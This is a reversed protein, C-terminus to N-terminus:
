KGGGLLNNGKNLTGGQSPANGGLGGHLGVSKGAARGAEFAAKSSARAGPTPAAKGVSLGAVFKTVAQEAKDFRVLAHNGGRQETERRMQRLRERIAHVYGLLFNRKANHEPPLGMAKTRARSAFYYRHGLDDGTKALVSFLYSVIARDSKRGIIKISKSGSYILMQCFHARCLAAALIELWGTRKRGAERLETVKTIDFYEADILDENEMQLVELDSMELKHKLLLESAKAAFAAAEEKSGIKEASEAKALLKKILDLVKM